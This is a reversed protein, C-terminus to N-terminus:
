NYLTFGYKGVHEVNHFQIKMIEGKASDKVNSNLALIQNQQNRQTSKFCKPNTRVPNIQLM